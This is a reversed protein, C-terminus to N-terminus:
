LAVAPGMVDDGTGESRETDGWSERGGETATEASRPRKPAFRGREGEPAVKSMLMVETDSRSPVSVGGGGSSEENPRAPVFRSLMSRDFLMELSRGSEGVVGIEDTGFVGRTPVVEGTSRGICIPRIEGGPGTGESSWFIRCSWSRSLRSGEMPRSRLMPRPSVPMFPPLMSSCTERKWLLPMGGNPEADNCGGGRRRAQVALPAGGTARGFPSLFPNAYVCVLRLVASVSPTLCLPLANRDGGAVVDGASEDDVDGDTFEGDVVDLGFNLGLGLRLGLRLAFPPPPSEADGGCSSPRGREDHDETDESPDLSCCGGRVDNSNPVFRQDRCLTRGM